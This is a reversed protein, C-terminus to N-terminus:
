CSNSIGHQKHKWQKSFGRQRAARAGVRSHFAKKKGSSVKRLFFTISRHFVESSLFPFLNRFSASHQANFEAAEMRIAAM